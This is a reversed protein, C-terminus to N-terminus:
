VSEQEDDEVLAYNIEQLGANDPLGARTVEVTRGAYPGSKLVARDGVKYLIRTMRLLDDETLNEPMPPPEAPTGEPEGDEKDPLEPQSPPQPTPPPSPQGEGKEEPNEAKPAPKEGVASAISAVVEMAVWLSGLSDNAGMKIAKDLMPTLPGETVFKWGGPSRSQYGKLAGKQRGTLYGLGLDRFSGMVVSLDNNVQIGRHESASRGSDEMELILDQLAEMKAITGPYEACGLREIRIDEIINSWELLPGTLGSWGPKGKEPEYPILAWMQLVLPWVEEVRIQTRRSWKTHWAEHYAGGILAFSLGKPLDDPTSAIVIGKQWESLAVRNAAVVWGEVDYREPTNGKNLRAWECLAAIFARATWNDKNYFQTGMSRITRIKPGLISDVTAQHTERWKQGRLSPSYDTRKM